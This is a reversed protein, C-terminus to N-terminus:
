SPLQKTTIKKLFNAIAESKWILLFAIIITVIYSGMEQWWFYKASYHYSRSIVVTLRPIARAVSSILYYLGLIQIWFALKGYCPMSNTQLSEKQESKGILMTILKDRKFLFIASPALILLSYLGMMFIHLGRSFFQEKQLFVFFITPVISQFFYMLLYLGFIVLVIDLVQRKNMNKEKKDRM